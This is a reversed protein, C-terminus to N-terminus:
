KRGGQETPLGAQRWTTWGNFLIHTNTYGLQHLSDALRHSLECEKGDCYVVVQSAPTLMPAIEGFHREFSLAPLNLANAIHGAEYDAPERADLFVAVGSSWIEKARELPLFADAKPAEKPPTILPLGRPSLRNGTLGLAVGLSVIAVARFLTKRM